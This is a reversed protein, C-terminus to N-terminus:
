FFEEESFFRETKSRSYYSDKLMSLMTPIKKYIDSYGASCILQMLELIKERFESIVRKTEGLIGLNAMKLSSATNSEIMDIVRNITDNIVENKQKTDEYSGNDEIQVSYALRNTALVNGNRDYKPAQTVDIEYEIGDIVDFLFTPFDRNILDQEKINFGNWIYIPTFPENESKVTIEYIELINNPLSHIMAEFNHDMLLPILMEKM